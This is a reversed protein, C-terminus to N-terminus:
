LLFHLMGDTSSSAGVVNSSTAVSAPQNTAVALQECCDGGISTVAHQFNARAHSTYERNIRQWGTIATWIWIGRVTDTVGMAKARPLLWTALQRRCMAPPLTGHLWKGCRLCTAVYPTDRPLIDGNVVDMAVRDDRRALQVEESDDEQTLRSIIDGSAIGGTEGTIATRGGQQGGSPGDKPNDTGFQVSGGEGPRGCVVSDHHGLITRADGGTPSETGMENNSSSLDSQVLSSKIYMGSVHLDVINGGLIRITFYADGSPTTGTIEADARPLKLLTSWESTHGSGNRVDNM